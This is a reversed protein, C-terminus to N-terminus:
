NYFQSEAIFNEVIRGTFTLDKQAKLFANYLSDLRYGPINNFDAEKVAKCATSKVYEISVNRNM